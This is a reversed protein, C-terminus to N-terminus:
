AARRMRRHRRRLHAGVALLLLGSAVLSSVLLRGREGARTGTGPMVQPMAPAMGTRTTSPEAQVIVTGVMGPLHYHCHYPYSGAQHFTFSFSQGPNLNGSDWLPSPMAMAPMDMQGAGAMTTHPITDTNTWTVTDGVAITLTAPQFVNGHAMTVVVTKARQAHVPAGAWASAGVAVLVLLLASLHRLRHDM